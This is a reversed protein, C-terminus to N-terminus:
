WLSPLGILIETNIISTTRVNSSSYVTLHETRVTNTRLRLLVTCLQLIGFVITRHRKLPDFRTGGIGQALCM